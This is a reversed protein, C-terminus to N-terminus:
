FLTIMSLCPYYIALIHVYNVFVHYIAWILNIEIKDLNTNEGTSGIMQWDIGFHFFFVHWFAKRKM